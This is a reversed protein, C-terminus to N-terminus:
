KLNNLLSKFRLKHNQELVHCIEHRITQRIEEPTRKITKIAIIHPSGAKIRKKNWYWDYVGNRGWHTGTTWRPGQMDFLRPKKFGRLLPSLLRRARLWEERFMAKLEPSPKTFKTRM